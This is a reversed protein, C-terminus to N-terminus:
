PREPERSLLDEFVGEPLERLSGVEVDAGLSAGSRTLGISRMGARQAAEVGARADEVVISRSAEVGLRSAALLFVEPDPKGRQVDEASVIAEFCSALGLVELVVEINLRPASSAVAQLWGERHLRRVWVDAGPSPAIGYRRVLSRYNAEKAAGIREVHEPTAEAGLWRPIISDNRWGFTELFQDRTIRVGEAAMADRWAQWHYEESDVLTGDLDWLVARTMPAYQLM